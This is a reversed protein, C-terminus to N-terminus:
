KTGRRLGSLQSMWLEGKPRDGVEYKFAQIIGVDYIGENVNSWNAKKVSWGRNKLYIEM